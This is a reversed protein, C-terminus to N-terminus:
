NNLSNALLYDILETVDSITIEGNENFDAAVYDLGRPYLDCPEAYVRSAPDALLIDILATVDSISVKGDRNIDGRLSLTIKDHTESVLFAKNTAVIGNNFFAVEGDEVDLSRVVCEVQDYENTTGCMAVEDESLGWFYKNNVTGAYRLMLHEYDLMYRNYIEEGFLTKVMNFIKEVSPAKIQYQGILYDPGKLLNGNVAAGAETSIVMAKDGAETAKILVPTQAPIIGEIAETTAIGDTTVGTVKYATVGEPMTYAFDTYLTTVYENNVKNEEPINVTFTTRPELTWIARGNNNIIDVNGESIFDPKGDKQAIYYKFDPRVQELKDLYDAFEGLQPRIENQYRPHNKLNTWYIMATEYAFSWVNNKNNLVQRYFDMTSAEDVPETLNRGMNEWIQHLSFPTLIAAGSGNTKELIKQIANNIATEMMPLKAEVKAQNERYFEVVPQMSPTKGYIRYGGEAPEVYLHYDFSENFKDLIADVGTEGFLEGVGELELKQAVLHVLEPVYNMAKNAYGQLDCAQSRLSQVQGNENTEVYIVTGAEDAPADTFRLTKRGQINAYQENGNNKISFYGQIPDVHAPEAVQDIIYSATAVPSEAMDAKTAKAYVTCDETLTLTLSRNQHWEDEENFRYLITAGETACDITLQQNGTYSGEVLSFTPTAVEVLVPETAVAELSVTVSEADQSSVTVTAMHIDEATPNYTVTVEAGDEAAAKAITTSSLAFVNNEDNLTLTVDGKLNEGMVTFTKQVPTGVTTEFEVKTDAALEPKAEITITYSASGPLYEDNGAFSATITATGIKEGIVVEGTNEDVVAIDEDTSGYTVTVNYPNILTPATFDAEPYVTFATNDGYSLGAEVPDPTDAATYSFTAKPLFSMLAAYYTKNNYACAHDTIEGVFTTAAASGTSNVTTQIILNKGATYELGPNFTLSIETGGAVPTYNTTVATTGDITFLEEETFETNDIFGMTVTTNGGYFQVGSNNTYFTVGTITKGDLLALKSAPYIVQSTTGNVDNYYGYFPIKENTATEGDCITLENVCNGTLEINVTEIENTDFSVQATAAYEGTASPAFLVPITATEGTALPAPTYTTGFPSTLGSISPTITNAGNNKVVINKSVTGGPITKGFNINAPSVKAAYPQLEGEYNFTAKPLFQQVYGSLASTSSWSYAYYSTNSSQTVGVFSSSNYGGQTGISVEIVLNDGTYQFGEDFEIVIETEGATYPKDTAVTTLGTIATASTFTAQTTNGMAVNITGTSALAKSHYFTLKTITKGDMNELMSAPYIMQNAQAYYGQGYIPLTYSTSTGQDCVTLTEEAWASPLTAALAFFLLLFKLKFYKM